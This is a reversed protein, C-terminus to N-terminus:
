CSFPRKVNFLAMPAMPSDAAERQFGIITAAGKIPVAKNMAVPVLACVLPLVAGGFVGAADVVTAGFGAGTAARLLPGFNRSLTSRTVPGDGM